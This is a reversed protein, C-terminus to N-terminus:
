GFVATATGGGVGDPFVVDDCQSFDWTGLPYATENQANVGLFSVGAGRMWIRGLTDDYISFYPVNGYHDNYLCLTGYGTGIDDIMQLSHTGASNSLKSGSITGGVIASGSIEVDGTFSFKSGTQEFLTYGNFKGDEVNNVRSSIGRTTVSLSSVEQGLASISLNFQEATQTMASEFEENSVKTKIGEANIEIATRMDGKEKVFRSSFNDDDLNYIIDEFKRQMIALEDRLLQVENRLRKLDMNNINAESM